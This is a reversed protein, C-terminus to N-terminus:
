AFSAGLVPLGVAPRREIPAAWIKSTDGLSALYSDASKRSKFTPAARGDIQIATWYTGNGDTAQLEWKRRAPYPRGVRLTVYRALYSAPLTVVIRAM